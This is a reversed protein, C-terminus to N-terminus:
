FVRLVSIVRGKIQCNNAKVYIPSMTPHAPQLRIKDGEPFYYKLTTEGNELLWVAVMDGAYATAQARLIVIDGEKVMADMMSDGKVELAFLESPDVGKLMFPPIMLLQEEDIHHGIDEPVQVPASAVIHGIKPVKLFADETLKARRKKNAVNQEVLRLGRSVRDSRELYGASVLKNLNYNVVSTSPIDTAEGIDRISPPYGHKEIYKQMFALINKQRESLKHYEKVM